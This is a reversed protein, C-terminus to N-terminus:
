YSSEKRLSLGLLFFVHLSRLNICGALTRYANLDEPEIDKPLFDLPPGLVEQVHTLDEGGEEFILLNTESFDPAGFFRQHSQIM